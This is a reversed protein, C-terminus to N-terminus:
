IAFVNLDETMTNSRLGSRDGFEEGDRRRRRKTVVEREEEEEDCGRM